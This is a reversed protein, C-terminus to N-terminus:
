SIHCHDQEFGSTPVFGIDLLELFTKSTCRVFELQGLTTRYVFDSLNYQIAINYVYMHIFNTTDILQLLCDYNRKVKRDELDDLIHECLAKLDPKTFTRSHFIDLAIEWQGCKIGCEIAQDLQNGERYLIMAERFKTHEELYRGYSLKSECLLTKLQDRNRHSEPCDEQKSEEISSTALLEEICSIADTFLRHREMYKLVEPNHTSQDRILNTIAKSYRRLKDDIKFKRKFDPFQNLEELIPVYEKPDKGLCDAVLSALGLDYTGLSTDFLIDQNNCYYSFYAFIYM